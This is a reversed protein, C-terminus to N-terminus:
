ALVNADLFVCVSSGHLVEEIEHEDQRDDAHGGDDHEGFKSPRPSCASDGLQGSNRKTM